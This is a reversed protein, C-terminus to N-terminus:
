RDEVFRRLAALQQEGSGGFCHLVRTANVFSHAEGRGVTGAYSSWKWDVPSACLGAEVPNLMVYRYTGKLDNDDAIRRSGYRRFQAHGRLGYRRNFYRAYALNLRHMGRPLTEPGVDLLLHHHTTMLCFGLCTWGAKDIARVAFRLFSLRDHDDRFFASSAWVCHTYVHFIGADVDRNRHGM